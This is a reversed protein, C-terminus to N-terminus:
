SNANSCSTRCFFFILFSGGFDSRSGERAVEAPGEDDGDEAEETTTIGAGGGGGGSTALALALLELM